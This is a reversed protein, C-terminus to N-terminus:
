GGNWGLRARIALMSHGFGRLQGADEDNGNHYAFEPRSETGHNHTLELVPEFMLKMHRSGSEEGQLARGLRLVVVFVFVYFFSTLLHSGDSLHSMSNLQNMLRLISHYIHVDPLPTGPKHQALFYLSFDGREPAFHRECVLSMGLIDTYFPLSKAPDKIRIMTQNSHLITLLLFILLCRM